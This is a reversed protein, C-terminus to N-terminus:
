FNICDLNHGNKKEQWLEFLNEAVVIFQGFPNFTSFFVRKSIIMDATLM